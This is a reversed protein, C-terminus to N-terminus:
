QTSLHAATVVHVTTGDPFHKCTYASITDNAPLVTHDTDSRESALSEISIASYLIDAKVKKRFQMWCLWDVGFHYDFYSWKIANCFSRCQSCSGSIIMCLICVRVNLHKLSEAGCYRDWSSYGTALMTKMFKEVPQITCAVSWSWRGHRWQWWAELM